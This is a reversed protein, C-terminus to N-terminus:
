HKLIKTGTFVHQTWENYLHVCPTSSCYCSLARYAVSNQSLGQTIQHLLRTGRVSSVKLLSVAMRKQAVSDSDMFYFHRRSNGDVKVLDSRSLMNFVQTADDIIVGWNTAERTLFSKVVAAEGDAACKGHRSGFFNWVIKFKSQFARAINLFPIKSKYQAACGDSWVIVTDIQPYMIQIHALLTDIFVFVASAFHKLDNSILCVSDRIDPSGKMNIVMPHITVQNRSYYASQAEGQRICTYNEAFDVVVACESPKLNSICQEYSASQSNKVFVHRGYPELMALFKSLLLARRDVQTVKTLRKIVKGNVPSEIIKWTMWKILDSPGDDAWSRLIQEVKQVGCSECKRDICAPQHVKRDCLTFLGLTLEDELADPVQFHSLQMSRRIAMVILSINECIDCVCQILRAASKHKIDRPKYKWFTSRSLKISPYQECFRVFLRKRTFNLVKLPKIQQGRRKNPYETVNEQNNFFDIVTSQLESSITSRGAKGDSRRHLTSRSVPVLKSIELKSPKDILQNVLTKRATKDTSMATASAQIIAKSALRKQSSTQFNRTELAAKKRPTAADM